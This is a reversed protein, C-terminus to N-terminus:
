LGLKSAWTGGQFLNRSSPVRTEKVITDGVGLVTGPIFYVKLSYKNVLHFNFILGYIYVDKM